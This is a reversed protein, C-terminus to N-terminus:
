EPVTEQKVPMNVIENYIASYQEIEKNVWEEDSLMKQNSFFGPQKRLYISDRFDQVLSLPTLNKPFMKRRNEDLRGSVYHALRLALLAPNLTSQEFWDKQELSLKPAFGRSTSKMMMGNEAVDFIRMNGSLMGDEPIPLQVVDFSGSLGSGYEKRYNKIMKILFSTANQMAANAILSSPNHDVLVANGKNLVLSYCVKRKENYFMFMSTKGSGKSANIFHCMISVCGDNKEGFEKIIDVVNHNSIDINRTARNFTRKLDIYSLSEDITKIKKKRDVISEVVYKKCIKGEPNNRLFQLIIDKASAEPSFKNGNNLIEETVSRALQAVGDKERSGAGSLRCQVIPTHMGWVALMKELKRAHDSQIEPKSDKQEGSGDQLEVELIAASEGRLVLSLLKGSVPDQTSLISLGNTLGKSQLHEQIFSPVENLGCLGPDQRQQNKEKKITQSIRSIDSADMSYMSLEGSGDEKITKQMVKSVNSPLTPLNVIENKYNAMEDLYEQKKDRLDILCQPASALREKYERFFRRNVLNGHFELHAPDSLDEISKEIKKISEKGVKSMNETQKIKNNFEDIKKSYEKLRKQIKPSQGDYHYMAVVALQGIQKVGLRHLKAVAEGALVRVSPNNHYICSGIIEAYLGGLKSGSEVEQKYLEFMAKLVRGAEGGVPRKRDGLCIKLSKLLTDVDTLFSRSKVHNGDVIDEIKLEGTLLLLNLNYLKEKNDGQPSLKGVLWEEAKTFAPNNRINAMMIPSQLVNSVTM